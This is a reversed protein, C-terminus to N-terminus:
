RRLFHDMLEHGREVQFDSQRAFAETFRAEVVGAPIDAGAMCFPPPESTHTKTNVPTPHDPAVLIRWRDFSKLADVLPGVIDADIREIAEVKARADGMHGAEDPAEIHVAILDYENLADIAYRGKAAYDTDIFGTAGPVDIIPWGILRGLGRILDVAAIVAGSVGYRPRFRQLIPVVGQGWLWIDTAIAKGAARRAANVPHNVLIDRAKDMIRRLDEGARGKPLYDAITEGPIDHPPMCVADLTSQDKMVLLNRYSVGTHFEMPEGAFAANLDAVIRESEETEIHGATFDRMDGDDVSIMNCRFVVDDPKLEIKRAVAEIPARGTYHKTVDYGLLSMTAVDSGPSYGDPVTRVAGIRGMRVLDDINPTVAAELPTQGGLADVPEDAAGDALIIAYKTLM